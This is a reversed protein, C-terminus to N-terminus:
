LWRSLVFIFTLLSAVLPGISQISYGVFAVQAFFGVTAVLALIAILTSTSVDEVLVLIADNPHIGLFREDVVMRKSPGEGVKNTFVYGCGLIDAIHSGLTTSGKQQGCIVVHEINRAYHALLKQALVEAAYRVIRAKSEAYSMDFFDGSIEGSTLLANPRKPNGDHHWIAGVGTLMEEWDVTKDPDYLLITDKWTKTLRGTPSLQLTINKVYFALFRASPHM